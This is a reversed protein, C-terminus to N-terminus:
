LGATQAVIMGFAGCDGVGGCRRGAGFCMGEKVSWSRLRLFRDLWLWCGGIEDALTFLARDGSGSEVWPGGAAVGCRSSCMALCLRRVVREERGPSVRMPVRGPWFGGVCVEEESKDRARLARARIDRWTAKAVLWFLKVSDTSPALPAVKDKSPRAM